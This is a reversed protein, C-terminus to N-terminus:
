STPRAVIRDERAALPDFARWRRGISRRVARRHVTLHKRHNPPSRLRDCRRSSVLSALRLGRRAMVSAIRTDRSPGSTRTVSSRGSLCLQTLVAMHRWSPVRKSPKSASSLRRQITSAPAPPLAKETPASMASNGCTRLLAAWARSYPLSVCPAMSAIARQRWGSIAATCPIHTPPPRSSAEMQSM